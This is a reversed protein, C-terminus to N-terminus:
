DEPDPAVEQVLQAAPCDEVAPPSQVFQGAPYDDVAPPSQV